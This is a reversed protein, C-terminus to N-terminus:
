INLNCYLTVCLSNKLESFDMPNSLFSTQTYLLLFLSASQNMIACSLGSSPDSQSLIYKQCILQIFPSSILLCLIIVFYLVALFEM